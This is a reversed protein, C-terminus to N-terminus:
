KLDSEKNDKNKILRTIYCKASHISILDTVVYNGNTDKVNFLTVVGNIVKPEIKYNKYIM